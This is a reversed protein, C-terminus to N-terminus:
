FVLSNGENDNFAQLETQIFSVIVDYNEAVVNSVTGPVVFDGPTEVGYTAMYTIMGALFYVTPRGHPDADEYLEDVSIQNLNTEKFLRALIPGVPIMKINANPRASTLANLYDLWWTHFEGLTFDNYEDFETVTAPHSEVFPSMDPWNEYIYITASPAQEQVWDVIALTSSVPSTEQQYYNETSPQYQVFNGATILINNFDAAAFGENDSDWAGPVQQFGWQSIPPLDDHQPLFGYQGAAAYSHGAAQAFAHIWHPITTEDTNTAHVMLSHGFMFSRMDTLLPVGLEPTDEILSQPEESESCNFLLGSLLLIIILKKM